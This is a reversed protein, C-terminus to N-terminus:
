LRHSQLVDTDVVAEALELLRRHHTFFLIQTKRSLEGLVKLTAEARDDDFHVLIDDVVFPMPEHQILFRELTALRLALYLQDRTGDSMGEVGVPQGAARVGVLLPEDKENFDAKLSQFSGLTLAAFLESARGLLPGQHSERYREIERRLIASALRLRVYRDVGERIEALKAQAMEAAEAARSEGDMHALENEEGGITEAVKSRREDLAHIEAELEAIRGPLADADVQAAEQELQALTWGEGHEVLQQEIGHIDRDLERARAAREEIGPLAAADACGALRCLEDLRRRRRAMEDESAALIAQAAQQQEHLGERTAEDRRAKQLRAHLQEVAQEHPLTALDPAVRLALAGVEAAFRGAEAALVEVRQGLRAAEDLKRFLEEFRGLVASAVAPTAGADLGLRAVVDQWGAQWRARRAGAEGQAKRTQSLRAQDKDRQETLNQRRREAADIDELVRVARALTGALGADAAEGQGPAAVPETFLAALETGLVAALERVRAALADVEARRTRMDAARQMLKGHGLLWGRMEQPPLPEIGAGAWRERWRAQLDGLADDQRRKEAERLAVARAQAGGRAQLSALEAVRGAERRLRDALADAEGMQHEFREPSVVAGAGDPAAAVEQGDMYRRRIRRWLADREARAHALDQESPVAGARQLADIERDIEALEGQATHIQEEAHALGRALEAWERDFRAVTEEAPVPLTELAELTGQWLGLRALEAEAQRAAADQEARAKGLRGEVDGERRVLEVARRLAAADRPPPLAELEAGIAAISAELEEVGARAKHEDVAIAHEDRALEELRAKFAAGPRLASVEARPAGGADALDMGPHLEALLARADSALQQRRGEHERRDDENARMRGLRKFLADISDGHTLVAEPIALAAIQEALRALDGRAREHAAHADALGRETDRREDTFGPPLLVVDGVGEREGRLAGRRALLPLARRLREIRHRDARRARLAEDVQAREARAARLAQEHETWRDSSLSVERIQRQADKLESLARNIQQKQGRPRFLADAESELGERVERLSAGGLAAAFLSEGVEGKGALIDEGGRALDEHGIGFLLAFRREDVGGLFRALLSDDIPSRDEGLLTNKNGKRRLFALTSGDSHAIRAGLLLKQHDHVFNDSTRTPIGYLLAALARLASSKGAENAGYIVHLGHHGGSLDLTRETFPGFALLDVSLFRM